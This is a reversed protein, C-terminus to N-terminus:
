LTFSARGEHQEETLTYPYLNQPSHVLCHERSLKSVEKPYLVSWDRHLVGCSSVAKRHRAFCIKKGGTVSQTGVSLFHDQSTLLKNASVIPPSLFQIIFLSEPFTPEM